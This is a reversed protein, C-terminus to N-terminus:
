EWVRVDHDDGSTALMSGDASFAVARVGQNHGALARVCAWTTGDWLRVLRDDGASALMSCDPCFALARVALEHGSLVRVCEGTRLDWIRVAQDDGASALVQGDPDFAVAFVAGVHGTLLLQDAAAELRWLRVTQDDGATALVQGDPSFAVCRVWDGHGEIVGLAAGTGADWLRATHDAGATALRCGDPSFAVSFVSGVHGALVHRASGGPCDWIRATGDESTTALTGADVPSFAASRVWDGHGTLAAAQRGAHVDWLRVTRDAGASALWRGDPSFAVGCVPRAHGTLTRVQWFLGPEPETEAPRRLRMERHEAAVPVPSSALLQTGAGGLYLVPTLWEMTRSGAGLIGTRGISVAEEIGRGRALAPYLGRAFASSAAESIAFQMAAVASVGGRVLASAVSSFLDGASTAGGPSSNLVVLGPMPDAQRLLDAFRDAEILDPNGGVTLPVQGQGQDPDFRGSGAFYLVQWRGDLLLEHLCALTAEPAWVLEVLGDKIPGALARELLQRENGPSSDAGLVRLPPAAGLPVPVSAVPVSAVPLQRVLEHYRCVYSGASQDFMAEWPLGALLPEDIRVIIRLRKDQSAAIAASARYLGHIEQEGFLAAFLERGLQRVSQEAERLIQGTATGSTLLAVQLEPRRERLVDLDLGTVAAGTGAPSRVIRVDFSKPVGASGITVEIVNAGGPRALGPEAREADAATPRVASLELIRLVAQTIRLFGDEARDGFLDVRQLSNLTRGGGLDLDPLDCDDFRVPILWPLDLRRLRVQEAALLLEENQYSKTRSLGPRSFCAVFILANQRIATKIRARWDDGPWLDATDRWVPIGAQELAHQLREVHGSDERVYSVFVHGRFDSRGSVLHLRDPLYGASLLSKPLGPVFANRRAVV